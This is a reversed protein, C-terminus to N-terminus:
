LTSTILQNRRHISPQLTREPRPHVVETPFVVLLRGAAQLRHQIGAKPLLLRGRRFCRKGKIRTLHGGGGVEVCERENTQAAPLLSELGKPFAM